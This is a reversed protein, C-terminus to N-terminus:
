RGTAAFVLSRNFIGLSGHRVRVRDLDVCDRNWSRNVLAVRVGNERLLLATEQKDEFFLGVRIAKAKNVKFEDPDDVVDNRVHLREVAVWPLHENFWDYTAQSNEPKRTTIFEYPVGLQELWRLVLVAGPYPKCARLVLSDFYVARHEKAIKKAEDSSTGKLLGLRYADEYVWDWSLVDDHSYKQGFTDNLKRVAQSNIDAWVGDIDFGIRRNTKKLLERRNM